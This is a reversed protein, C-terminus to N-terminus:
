ASAEENVAVARPPAPAFFGVVTCLLGYAIFSGIGWLNGLHGRDVFVLKALVVAMLVAGALWLARQGRRSGVIWGLMGLISWVVTLSTQALSSGALRGDWPAGGWQHAARLTIATVLAFALMSLLPVRPARPLAPGDPSWLWRALLLVVAAQALDLPNLVAIWPLPASDGPNGLAALWWLALVGLLAGRLTTRVPDFREGLPRALWPWRWLSLASVVLWPLAVAVAFWGGALGAMRAVHAMLLSVVLPWLLWWLLQAARAIRDEGARLCVLGRFGLVAFAAWAPAGYGAFPQVHAQMQWFALPAAVLLAAFLTAGLVADPRRRHVEAALWGTVAALALLADPLSASPVARALEQIWAGLWWALAWAYAIRAVPLRGAQRYGAATALGSLAILLAGAFGGNVFAPDAPRSWVTAALAYAVAAALQLGVGSLQPLWRRQRLGLWVLGAGELAFVCATAHASLALPVALTAFGVALLAYAQGLVAERRRRLLAWALAAYVAAGGLACLALAFRHGQLLGAQLSFAVLPTGFVLCGDVLDRRSPPRRRAYLLPIALYFAFFLALFPQTTAFDDPAYRLVGWLTGIGFTFAFGLLNLVRWARFWAIGLIAGNLVAYYAFLAVHSGGGTSLWIPALFGALVAFVALARADQLVALVGAGAVLAVSAAFAIGGPLLGFQKYAAFVVLLLIGIMGGQLSLAFTRHSDRRRWGFALGGIAAAAVAALRLEVPVSLWGQDSAYKLLAAVGAFLVLMGIKVPVNGTTFWSRVWRAARAFPDPGPPRSPAAPAAGTPAPDADRWAARPPAPPLPPPPPTSVPPGPWPDAVPPARDHGVSAGDDAWPTAEDGLATDERAEDPADVEATRQAAAPTPSRLADVQTELETVRRRLDFLSVLAVILMVPVAVLLAIGLLLLAEM